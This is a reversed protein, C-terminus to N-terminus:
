NFVPNKSQIDMSEQYTEKLKKDVQESIKQAIEDSNGQGDHKVEIELKSHVPKAIDPNRFLSFSSTSWANAATKAFLDIGKNIGGVAKAGFGVLKGIADAADVIGKIFDKDTFISHMNNLFETMRPMAESTIERGFSQMGIRVLEMSHDFAVSNAAQQKTLTSYKSATGLTKLWQSDNLKLVRIADEGLGIENLFFQQQSKTLASFRRRIMNLDKEAKGSFMNPSIGMMAFSEVNEKGLRFATTKRTLEKLVSNATGGSAGALKFARQLLDVRSVSMGIDDAFRSLEADAKAITGAMFTFGTQVIGGAGFIGLLGKSVGKGLGVLHATANQLDKTKFEPFINLVFDGISKLAM